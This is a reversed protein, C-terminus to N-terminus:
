VRWDCEIVPFLCASSDRNPPTVHKEGGGGRGTELFISRFLDRGKVTKPVKAVAPPGDKSTISYEDLPLIRHSCYHCADQRLRALRCLRARTPNLFPVFLMQPSVTSVQRGDLFGIWADRVELVKKQLYGAPVFSAAGVLCLLCRWRRAM